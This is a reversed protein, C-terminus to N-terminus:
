REIEGGKGGVMLCVWVWMYGRYKKRKLKGAGVLIGQHVQSTVGPWRALYDRGDYDEYATHMPRGYADILGRRAGGPLAVMSQEGDAMKTKGDAMKTKGDAMKTKGDAMKSNSSSNSKRLSAACDTNNKVEYRRPILNYPRLQYTNLKEEISMEGKPYKQRNKAHIECHKEDIIMSNRLEFHSRCTCIENTKLEPLYPM